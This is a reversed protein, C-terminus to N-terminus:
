AEPHEDDEGFDVALVSDYTITAAVADFEVSEGAQVRALWVCVALVDLDPKSLFDMLEPQSWGTASRLKMSHGITLPLSLPYGTGDVKIVVQVHKM